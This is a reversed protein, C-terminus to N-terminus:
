WSWNYNHKSESPNEFIEDFVNLVLSSISVPNHDIKTDSRVQKAIKIAADTYMSLMRKNLGINLFLSMPKKSNAM